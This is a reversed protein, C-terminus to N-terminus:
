GVPQKPLLQLSQLVAVITNLSNGELRNNVHIFTNRQHGAKSAEQRMQILRAAAERAEHNIEQTRNYPSFSQVAEEYKRGPRLLFRAAAFDTTISGPIDLQEGVPPMREWHNFVHAIRHRKLLDFYPECLLTRNRVEVGYQYDQPLQALFPELVEVFDRGREFDRPHFHSFEFILLGISDKHPALSSLFASRFLDPNLFHENRRGAKDGHRPLNPFTRATIEDCVKFSFRFGPAVQRVLGAIYQPSPFRYYGADVCVTPFVEAYESLCDREFRSGALKGRYLYRQEDYLQGIWGPYKWSSTGIFIQHEDALRRLARALELRPFSSAPPILEM